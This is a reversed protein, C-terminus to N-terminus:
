YVETEGIKAREGTLVTQVRSVVNPNKGTVLSPEYPEKIRVGDDGFEVIIDKKDWKCKLTKSLANFLQQARPSVGEGVLKGKAMERQYAVEEKDRIRHLAENSVSEVPEPQSPSGSLKVSALDIYKIKVMRYTAIHSGVANEKLVLTETGQDYSYVEGRVPESRQIKLSFSVDRGTWDASPEAM